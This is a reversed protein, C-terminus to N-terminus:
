SVLLVCIATVMAATEFTVIFIQVYAGENCIRSYHEFTPNGNADIFSFWFLGGILLFLALFSLLIGPSCLMLLQRNEQRRDRELETGNLLDQNSSLGVAMTM